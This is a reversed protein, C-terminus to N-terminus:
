ELRRESELVESCACASDTYEAHALELFIDMQVATPRARRAPWSESTKGRARLRPGTAAPGYGRARLRPGTVAPRYCRAQLLPGTAAPGDRHPGGHDVAPGYARAALGAQGWRARTIETAKGRAWLLPGTAAPGTGAPAM